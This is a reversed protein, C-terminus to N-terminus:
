HPCSCVCYQRTSLAIVLSAGVQVEARLVSWQCLVQDRGEPIPDPLCVRITYWYSSVGAM